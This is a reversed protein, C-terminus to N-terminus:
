KTHINANKNVVLTKTLHPASGHCGVCLCRAYGGEWQIMEQQHKTQNNYKSLITKIITENIKLM